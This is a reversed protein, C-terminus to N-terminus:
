YLLCNSDSCPAHAVDKNKMTQMDRQLAIMQNKLRNIQLNKEDDRRKMENELDSIKQDGSIRMATVNNTLENVKQNLNEIEQKKNEIEKKLNEIIFNQIIIKM